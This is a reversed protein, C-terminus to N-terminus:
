KEGKALAEDITTVDHHKLARVVARCFSRSRAIGREKGALMQERAQWDKITAAGARVKGARGPIKVEANAYEALQVLTLEKVYSTAQTTGDGPTFMRVVAHERERVVQRRHNRVYNHIAVRAVELPDPTERLLAILMDTATGDDVDRPITALLKVLTLRDPGLSNQNEHRSHAGVSSSSHNDPAAHRHNVRAPQGGVLDGRLAVATPRPTTSAGPSSASARTALPHRHGPPADSAKHLSTTSM